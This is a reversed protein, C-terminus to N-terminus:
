SPGEQEGERGKERKRECECEQESERKSGMILPLVKANERWKKREQTSRTRTKGKRM